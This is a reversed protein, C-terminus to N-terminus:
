GFVADRVVDLATLVAGRLVADGEVRSARVDTPAPGLAGLRDAVLGALRDGGSRGLEGGLVVLGPDLVAVLAFAAEAIWAAM